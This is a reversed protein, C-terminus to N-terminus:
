SAASAPVPDPRVIVTEAVVNIEDAGFGSKQAHRRLAEPSEAEYICYTGLTGDEEQLVYSRIWRVGSGDEDGVEMSRAGGAELEEPTKWWGRRRIGYLQMQVEKDIVTTM